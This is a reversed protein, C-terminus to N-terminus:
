KECIENINESIELFIEPLKGFNELIIKLIKQFSKIKFIKRFLGFNKEIIKLSNGSIIRGFKGFYNEFNESIKRSLLVFNTKFIKEFIELFNMKSYKGMGM